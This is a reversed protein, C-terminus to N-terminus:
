VLLYFINFPLTILKITDAATTNPKSSTGAAIGVITKAASEFM